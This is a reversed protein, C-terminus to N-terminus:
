VEGARLVHYGKLVVVDVACGATRWLDAAVSDKVGDVVVEVVRDVIEFDFGACMDEGFAISEYVSGRRNVSERSRTVTVYEGRRVRGRIRLACRINSSRAHVIGKSSRSWEGRDPTDTM